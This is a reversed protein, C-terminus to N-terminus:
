TQCIDDIAESQRARAEGSLPFPKSLLELDSFSESTLARNVTPRQVPEAHLAATLFDPDGAYIVTGM